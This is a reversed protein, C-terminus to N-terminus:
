GPRTPVRGTAVLQWGFRRLPPNLRFLVDFVRLALRAAGAPENGADAIAQDGRLKGALKYLNFFPWGRAAVAVDVLGSDTLVAALSARTHHRRHGIHQEFANMPGAPCSVIVQAGAAAYRLGATLLRVPHDVHEVVECCVVHTAGAFGSPPGDVDALLNRQWVDAKPVKRRTIETGEASLEIGFLRANPCTRAVTDLLDGQGCGLDIVRATATNAANDSLWRVLLRRRYAQAPNLSMSEAFSSWHADWDDPSTPTSATM